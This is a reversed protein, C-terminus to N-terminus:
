RNFNVPAKRNPFHQPLVLEARQFVAVPLADFVSRRCRSQGEEREVLTLHQGSTANEDVFLSFSQRENGPLNKM